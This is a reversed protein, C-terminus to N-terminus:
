VVYLFCCAALTEGSFGNVGGGRIDMLTREEDTAAGERSSPATLGSGASTATSGSFSSHRWQQRLLGQAGVTRTRVV